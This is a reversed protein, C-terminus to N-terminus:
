LMAVYEGLPPDGMGDVRMPCGALMECTDSATPALRDPSFNTSTVFWPGKWTAGHGRLSYKDSTHVLGM